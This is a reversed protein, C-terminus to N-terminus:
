PQKSFHLTLQTADGVCMCARVRLFAFGKAAMCFVAIAVWQVLVPISHVLASSGQAPLNEQLLALLRCSSQGPRM